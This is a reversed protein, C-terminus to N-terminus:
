QDWYLWPALVMYVIAAALLARPLLRQAFEPRVIAGFQVVGMILADRAALKPYSIPAIMLVALTAGGLGIATPDTVGALYAAALISAALTNQIGPRRRGDRYYVTYMATRLLSLLAFGTAVGVTALLVWPRDIGPAWADYLIGFVFLAPAAGFSTVDAMADLTHGVDTSGLHRAVIGDLGDAVAALLILRAVLSPDGWFIATMAIVGLGANALTVLDATGLRDGLRFGM